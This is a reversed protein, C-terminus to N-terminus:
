DDEPHEQRGNGQKFPGPEIDSKLIPIIKPDGAGAQRRAERRASKAELLRELRNVKYILYLVAALLLGDILSFAM